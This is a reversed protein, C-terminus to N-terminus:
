GIKKRMSNSRAGVLTPVQSPPVTEAPLVVVLPTLEPPQSLKEVVVFAMTWALIPM